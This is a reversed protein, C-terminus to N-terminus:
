QRSTNETQCLATQDAGLGTVQVKLSALLYKLGNYKHDKFDKKSLLNWLQSLKYTKGQYIYNFTAKPKTIVRRFGLALVDQIFWPVFFWSDFAANERGSARKGRVAGTFRANSAFYRKRPLSKERQVVDLIYTMAQTLSVNEDVLYLTTSKIQWM